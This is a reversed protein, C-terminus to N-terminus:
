QVGIGAYFMVGDEEPNNVNQSKFWSIVKEKNVSFPSKKIIVDIKNIKDLYEIYYEDTSIPMLSTAKQLNPYEPNILLNLHIRTTQAASITITQNVKLFGLKFAELSHQGAPIKDIIFPTKNWPSYHKPDSTPNNDISVYVDPINSDVALIGEQNNQQQFLQSTHPYTAENNQGVSPTPTFQSTQQTQSPGKRSIIITLFVLIIFLLLIGSLLKNNKIFEIM